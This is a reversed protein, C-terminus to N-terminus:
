NLIHFTDSDLRRSRSHGGSHYWMNYFEVENTESGETELLGTMSLEVSLLKEPEDNDIKIYNGKGNDYICQSVQRNCKEGIFEFYYYTKCNKSITKARFYRTSNKIKLLNNRYAEYNTLNSTSAQNFNESNNIKKWQHFSKMRLDFELRCYYVLDIDLSTNITDRLLPLPWDIIHSFEKPLVPPPPAHNVKRPVPKPAPKASEELTQELALKALKQREQEARLKEQKALELKKQKELEALKKLREREEQQQKLIQERKLKEQRELEKQRKASM